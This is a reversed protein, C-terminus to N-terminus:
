GMSYPDDGTHIRQHAALNGRQTFTKGCQKCEYSKEGTHIRQHAVLSSSQSFAKGCQKCEYPKEGTHIRQHESLFSCWRFAKGCHKCEYPKEGTHIRQHKALNSRQTFAKGCHKCEYPTEGTHIRQHVALHGRETFAKGCQKCQYPKEGTHIRQHAALSTRKTFAKGCQKCQYPKEGTHIRQHAALNARITFAKGCHKCEYPKEGTHIRQHVALIGSGTFAKGCHKCKYPKEGTHIRQHVTLNSRQTFAKGCQKCEHPKEGTHISQHKALSGRETFFNRYQKCDYPIEGTYIRQHESNQDFPRGGNDSVSDMKVRKSKPHRILDSSWDFSVQGVKGQYMPKESSQVFGVEEFICQQYESNLDCNNGSTLKMYQTLVSYQSFKETSEGFECDSKPNKNAKVTSDCIERLIFDCPGENMCRQSGSVEMFLNLKTSMEKVEFDPFFNRPVKQEVLCPAKRQQFCSIFTETPVPLGVSLLNKVNELMVELYLEKQSHDLLCWEEQTFDVAVDMFTISGQSPLRLTGPAMGRATPERSPGGQPGEPPPLIGRHAGSLLAGGMAHPSPCGWRGRWAGTPLKEGQGTRVLVDGEPFPRCQGSGRVETNTGKKPDM